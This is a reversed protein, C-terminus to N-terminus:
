RRMTSAGRGNCRSKMYLHYGFRREQKGDRKERQWAYKHRRSRGFTADQTLFRLNPTFRPAGLRTRSMPSFLCACRQHAGTNSKLIAFPRRSPFSALHIVSFNFARMSYFSIILWVILIILNSVLLCVASIYVLYCKSELAKASETAETDNLHAVSAVPDIRIVAFRGEFPTRSDM